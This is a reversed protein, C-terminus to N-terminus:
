LKLHLLWTPNPVHQLPGQAHSSHVDVGSDAGDPVLTPRWTLVDVCFGSCLDQLAPLPILLPRLPFYPAPPLKQAPSSCLQLVTKPSSRTLLMHWPSSNPPKHPLPPWPFSSATDQAGM